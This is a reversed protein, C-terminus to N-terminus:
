PHAEQALPLPADAKLPPELHRALRQRARCLMVRVTTERRALVAAISACDQREVYHLWLATRQDGSLVAAALAWLNEREEAQSAHSAPDEFVVREPLEEGMPIPDSRRYRSRLLRSGITFLWTSFRWRPDYRELRQWARLFTEQALEEADARSHARLDLFSLLPEQFREVLAAFAARSGRRAALALERATADKSVPDHAAGESM